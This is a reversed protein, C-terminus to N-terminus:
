KSHGRETSSDSSGFQAPDRSLQLSAGVYGLDGGKARADPKRYGPFPPVVMDLASARQLTVTFQYCDSRYFFTIHEIPKGDDSCTQREAVLLPWGPAVNLLSATQGEAKMARIWQVAQGLRISLKTEMLSYLSNKEFDPRSLGVGVEAPVYIVALAIPLGSVIHQRKIRLVPSEATNGFFRAVPEPPMVWKYDAIRVEHTLGQAEVIEALSLLSGLEQSVGASTVYSGKGQHTVLLGERELLRIAHRLTVRSVSHRKMLVAQSGISSGVPLEGSRIMGRIDRAVQLYLPEVRQTEDRQTEDSVRFVESEYADTLGLLPM